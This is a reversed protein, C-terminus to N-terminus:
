SKTGNEIPADDNRSMTPFSLSNRKKPVKVCSFLNNKM